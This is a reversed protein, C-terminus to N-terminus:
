KPVVNLATDGGSDTTMVQKLFDTVQGDPTSGETTGGSVMKIYIINSEDRYISKVLDTLFGTVSM